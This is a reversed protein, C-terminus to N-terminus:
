AVDPHALQMKTEKPVGQMASSRADLKLRLSAYTGLGMRPGTFGGPEDPECQVLYASSCCLDASNSGRKTRLRGRGKIGVKIPRQAKSRTDLRSQHSAYAFVPVNKAFSM